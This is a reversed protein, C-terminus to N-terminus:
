YLPVWLAVVIAGLGTFLMGAISWQVPRTHFGNLKAAGYRAMVISSLMAGLGIFFIVYRVASEM